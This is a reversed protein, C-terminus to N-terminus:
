SGLCVNSCWCIYVLLEQLIFVTYRSVKLSSFKHLNTPFFCGKALGVSAMGGFECPFSEYIAVFDCFKHFNKEKFTEWQITGGDYEQCATTKMIADVIFPYGLTETVLQCQKSLVLCKLTPTVLHKSHQYTCTDTDVFNHLSM